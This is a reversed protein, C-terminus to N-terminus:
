FSFISIHTLTKLAPKNVYLKCVIFHVRETLLERLKSLHIYDHLSCELYLVNEDGWSINQLLNKLLHNHTELYVTRRLLCKAVM